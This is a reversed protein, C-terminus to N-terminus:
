YGHRRPKAMAILFRAINSRDGHSRRRARKDCCHSSNQLIITSYSPNLGNMSPQVYTPNGIIPTARYMPPVNVNPQNALPPNINVHHQNIHPLSVNPQSYRPYVHVPNNTQPNYSSRIPQSHTQGLHNSPAQASYPPPAIGYDENNRNLKPEVSFSKRSM